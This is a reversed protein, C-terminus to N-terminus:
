NIGSGGRLDFLRRDLEDDSLNSNREENRRRTERATDRIEDARKIDAETVGQLARQTARHDVFTYASGLLVLVAVALGLARGLKTGILFGIM